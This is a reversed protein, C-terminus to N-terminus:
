KINLWCSLLYCSFILILKEFFLQRDNLGIVTHKTACHWNQVWPAMLTRIKKIYVTITQHLNPTIQPAKPTEISRVVTISVTLHFNFECVLKGRAIPLGVSEPVTKCRATPCGVINQVRNKTRYRMFIAQARCLPETLVQIQHTNQM